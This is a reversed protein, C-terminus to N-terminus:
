RDSTLARRLIAEVEQVPWGQQAAIAAPTWGTAFLDVVLGRAEADLGVVQGIGVPGAGPPRNYRADAEVTYTPSYQIAQPVAQQTRQWALATEVGRGDALQQVPVPLVGRSDPLVWARRRWWGDLWIVGPVGVVALGLVGLWGLALLLAILGLLGVAVGGLGLVVWDSHRM